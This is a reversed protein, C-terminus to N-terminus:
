ARYMSDLEEYTRKHTWATKYPSSIEKTENM